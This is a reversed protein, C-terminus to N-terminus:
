VVSILVGDTFTLTQIGVTVTGTYGGLSISGSSNATNGNVSTAIYDGNVTAGNNAVITVEEAQDDAVVRTGGVNGNIDGISVIGNDNIYFLNSYTDSEVVLNYTSIDMVRNTSFSQGEGLVDDIGPIVPSVEVSVMTWDASGGGTAVAIFVDNTATNIYIQGLYTASITPGTVGHIPVLNNNINVLIEELNDLPSVNINSLLEGDYIVCLANTYTACTPCVQATRM